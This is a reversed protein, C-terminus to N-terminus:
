SRPLGVEYGQYCVCRVSLGLLRALPPQRSRAANSRYRSFSRTFHQPQLASRALSSSYQVRACCRQMSGLSTECLYINEQFTLQFISLHTHTRKHTQTM